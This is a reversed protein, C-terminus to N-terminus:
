VFLVLCRCHVFSGFFFAPRFIGEELSFGGAASIGPVAIRRGFDRQLSPKGLVGSGGTVRDQRRWEGMASMQYCPTKKSPRVCERDFSNWLSCCGTGLALSHYFTLVLFVKKGACTFHLSSCHQFRIWRSVDGLPFHSSFLLVKSSSRKKKKKLSLFRPYSFFFSTCM